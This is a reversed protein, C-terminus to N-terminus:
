LRGLASGDWQAMANITAPLDSLKRIVTEAGADMLADAHGPFTHGGGTFGIVRCGAAVAGQIGHSSDEIVVTRTPDIEFESTAFNFVSPSPKPEKDGVERAAFIYPRFREYLGVQNARKVIKEGESNSCICRPADLQDLITDAGAIMQLEREMREDIEMQIDDFTSAEMPRDMEDAVTQLIEETTLGAFRAAFDQWDIEYGLANLAETEVKAAIIESDVLVGDFDFIILDISSTSSSSMPNAKKPHTELPDLPHNVVNGCHGNVKNAFRAKVWNLLWAPLVYLSRCNAM